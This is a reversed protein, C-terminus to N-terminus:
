QSLSWIAFLSQFCFDTEILFAFASSSFSFVRVCTWLDPKQSEAVTFRNLCIPASITWSEFAVAQPPTAPQLLSATCPCLSLRCYTTACRRPPLSACSARPPIRSCSADKPWSHPAWCLSPTTANRHSRPPFALACPLSIPHPAM